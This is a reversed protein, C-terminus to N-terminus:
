VSTCFFSGQAEGTQLLFLIPMIAPNEMMLIRRSCWQKKFDQLLKEGM